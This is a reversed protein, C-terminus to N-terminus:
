GKRARCKRLFRHPKTSVDCCEYACSGQSAGMLSILQDQDDPQPDDLVARNRRVLGCGHCRHVIVWGKSGGQEIAVPEMSGRCQSSRDGPREDVHKSYLCYPCHNRYSGNRLPLVETGCKECLFSVNETSRSM